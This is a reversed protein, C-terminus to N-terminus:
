GGSPGDSGAARLLRLAGPELRLEVSSARDMPDGDLQWPFSEGGRAGVVVRRAEGLQAAWGPPTRRLQAAVLSAVTAWPAARERLQYGFAGDDAAAGPVMEMGKGYTCVNSVVLAAASRAAEVGDIEVAFRAPRPRVMESVAVCGYLTDASRRYWGAGFSGAGSRARDVREAVAADYGFGAMALFLEEESWGEARAWGVDIRWEEARDLARAAEVPDLPLGAERAVVNGTGLPLVGLAVRSAHGSALLGVGAERLSGDGGLALIRDVGEALAASMEAIHGARESRGEHVEHGAGQLLAVAEAAATAARGRGAIPNYLLAYRM